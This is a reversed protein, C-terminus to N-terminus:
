QPMKTIEEVVVTDDEVRFAIEYPQLILHYLREPEDHYAPRPDLSLTEHMAELWEPEIGRPLTFHPSYSVQLVRREIANVFGGQADPISDAYPVYPKIDYIPTGDVMDAGSIEIFAGDKRDLHLAEVKVVSLGLGNPRFPSRTAFVGMRENGGLRPPRVTPQWQQGNLHFQWILWLHSFGDLGRLCERQRFEPEFVIFSRVHPALNGQRPVGFKQTYPSRITAIVQM